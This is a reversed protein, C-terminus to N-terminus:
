PPRVRNFSYFGYVGAVLTIHFSPCKKMMLTASIVPCHNRYKHSNSKLELKLDVMYNFAISDDCGVDVVIVIFYPPTQVILVIYLVSIIATEFQM